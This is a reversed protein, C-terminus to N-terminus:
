ASYLVEDDDDDDDGWIYIHGLQCQAPLLLESADKRAKM